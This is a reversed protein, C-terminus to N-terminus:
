RSSLGGCAAWSASDVRGDPYARVRRVVGDLDKTAVVLLDVYEAPRPVNRAQDSMRQAFNGAVKPAPPSDPM